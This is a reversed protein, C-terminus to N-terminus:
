KGPIIGPNETNQQNDSRNQIPSNYNKYGGGFNNQKTPPSPPLPDLFQSQAQNIGRYKGTFDSGNASTKTTSVLSTSKTSIFANTYNGILVESKLNSTVTTETGGTTVKNDTKDLTFSARKPLINHIPKFSIAVELVHPLEQVASTSDLGLKEELNIEWTTSNDATVNVSEIFGPVRYFYDGLTLKILPARMVNTNESYDPYVQSILHNLKNYMVKLESRSFAVIKFSFSIQRTFGQYTHFEEGRGMYRFSNLAASNNDSFGNSLLARFILAVSYDTYDNSMCEFGLKISDNYGLKKWPDTDSKFVTPYMSEISKVDLYGKIPVLYSTPKGQPSDKDTVGPNSTGFVKQTKALNWNSQSNDYDNINKRFDQINNPTIPDSQLANQKAIQNYGVTGPLNNLQSQISTNFTKGVNSTLFDQASTLEKPIKVSDVANELRNTIISTDFSGVTNNVTSFVMSNTNVISAKKGIEPYMTSVAFSGTTFVTKLDLLAM